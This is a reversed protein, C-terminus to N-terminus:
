EWNSILTKKFNIPLGKRRRLWLNASRKSRKIWGPIKLSGKGLRKSSSMRSTAIWSSQFKPALESPRSALWAAQAHIFFARAEPMNLRQQTLHKLRSRHGSIDEPKMFKSPDKMFVGRTM